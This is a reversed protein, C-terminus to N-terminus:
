INNQFFLIQADCIEQFSNTKIYKEVSKLFKSGFDKKLVHRYKSLIENKNQGFITLTGVQTQSQAYPFRISIEAM